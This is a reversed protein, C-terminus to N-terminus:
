DNPPHFGYETQLKGWLWKAYPRNRDQWSNAIGEASAVEGTLCYLYTLLYIDDSAPTSRARKSELLQIAKQYNRAAVADATLDSLVEVPPQQLDDAARKALAVRFSNSDLYELVPERLQSGRLNVDLAELWNIGEILTRYRMERIAFFPELQANTIEDPFTQQILSSTVFRRAADNARMYTGTFAHIAPDEAAEDGLRKPYFDTLPKADSTIRNIEASDMIFLSALQQPVEVGIRALDDRTNI